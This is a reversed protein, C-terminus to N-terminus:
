LPYKELYGSGDGRETNEKFGLLSGAKKIDSKDVFLVMFHTLRLSNNTM